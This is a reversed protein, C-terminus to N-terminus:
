MYVACVYAFVATCMCTFVSFFVYTRLCTDNYTICRIRVHKLCLFICCTCVIYMHVCICLYVYTYLFMFVSMFAFVCVRVYLYVRTRVCVLLVSFVDSINSKIPVGYAFKEGM